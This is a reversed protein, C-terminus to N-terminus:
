AGNRAAHRERERDDDGAHREQPKHTSTSAGAGLVDITVGTRTRAAGENDVAVATLTYRGAPVNSWKMRHTVRAMPRVAHPDGGHTHSREPLRMRTPAHLSSGPMTPHPRLPDANFGRRAKARRACNTSGPGWRKLSPRKQRESHWPPSGLPLRRHRARLRVKGGRFAPERARGLCQCSAVRTVGGEPDGVTSARVVAAPAVFAAGATPATISPATVDVAVTRGDVILEVRRVGIDDTANMTISVTGAVTAGAAPTTLRVAPPASTALADPHPYEVILGAHDSPAATGAPVMGLREITILAVRLRRGIPQLFCRPLGARGAGV